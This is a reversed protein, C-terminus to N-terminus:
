EPYIHMKLADKLPVDPLRIADDEIRGKLIDPHCADCSYKSDVAKSKFVEPSIAKHRRRWYPTRVISFVNERGKVSALLKVAAERTSHGASHQLLYARITEADEVDLDLEEGYHDELTDMIMNWSKEPLLYAPFVIHCDGCELALVPQAKEYDIDAFRSKVLANDSSHVIYYYIWVSGFLFFLAFFNQKWDLRVDIGGTDCKYGTFMSWIIGTRHYLHEFVVGGIHIVVVVLLLYAVVTHILGIPDMYGFFYPNLFSTIGRGEQIGYLLLGTMGLFFGLILMVMAGWSSAPNHGPTKEKQGFLHLIYNVFRDGQFDFCRFNSYLPGVIGWSLRFLALLLFVMGFAVHLTLLNEFWILGFAIFFSLAYLWHFTRICLPWVYIKRKM